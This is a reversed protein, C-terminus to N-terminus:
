EGVLDALRAADRILIHQHRIELIGRERLYHLIRNVSNRTSIGCFGAIDENTVQFNILIGDSTHIGFSNILSILFGCVAGRRGNMTMIQQRHISEVLKNRYYDKVYNQLQADRNVYEWFAVRAVQYFVARETEVRINFPAVTYHSVEDRLLSIIDPAKLYAINFERGDRLIVSTKM